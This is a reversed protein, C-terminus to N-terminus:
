VVSKRAIAVEAWTVTVPATTLRVRVQVGTIGSAPAKGIYYAFTSTSTLSKTSGASTTSFGVRNRLGQGHENARLSARIDGRYDYVTWGTNEEYVLCDLPRLTTKIIQYLVTAVDKQVTVIQDTTASMNRITVSKVVRQTSGSPAALLTTTTATSPNAESDVPVFTTATLDAASVTMDTAVANGTVVELSSGTTDLLIM